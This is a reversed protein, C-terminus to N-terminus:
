QWRSVPQMPGHDLIEADIDHMLKQAAKRANTAHDFAPLTRIFCQDVLSTAISASDNVIACLWGANAAGAFHLTSNLFHLLWQL